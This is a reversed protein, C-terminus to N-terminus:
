ARRDRVVDRQGCRVGVEVIHNAGGAQRVDVIADEFQRV